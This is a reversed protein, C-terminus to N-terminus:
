RSCRGATDRQWGSRVMPHWSAPLVKADQGAARALLGSGDSPRHQAHANSLRALSDDCSRATRRSRSRVERSRLDTGM